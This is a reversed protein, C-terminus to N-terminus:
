PSNLPLPPDFEMDISTIRIQLDPCSLGKRLMCSLVNIYLWGKAAYVTKQNNKVDKCEVFIMSHQRLDTDKKEAKGKKQVWSGFTAAHGKDFPLGM